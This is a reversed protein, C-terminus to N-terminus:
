FKINIGFNVLRQVPYGGYYSEPDRDKFDGTAWTLLNYGNAFLRITQLRIKRILSQPLSYGIEANKLRIYNTNMM